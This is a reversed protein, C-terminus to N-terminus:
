AEASIQSGERMGDRSGERMGDRSGERMGDRAGERMGDRSGERMGDRSGERAATVSAGLDLRTAIERLKEQVARANDPGLRLMHKQAPSLAQLTGDAYRYRGVAERVAPATPPVEVALLNEIAAALTEEWSRESIGLERYAERFLPALQRYVGAARA